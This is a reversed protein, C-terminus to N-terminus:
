VYSLRMLRVYLILQVDLFVQERRLENGASFLCGLELSVYVRWRERWTTGARGPEFTKTLKRFGSAFTEKRIPCRPFVPELSKTM